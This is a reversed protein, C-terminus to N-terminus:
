GLGSVVPGSLVSVSVSVSPPVLGLSGAFAGPSVDPSGPVVGSGVGSVGPPNKSDRAAANRSTTEWVTAKKDPRTLM